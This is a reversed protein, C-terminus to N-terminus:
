AKVGLEKPTKFSKIEGNQLVLIKDCISAVSTRHTIIVTTIKKDKARKITNNLAVEGDTDLNSNPEDLVVFKAEDFYARVLAIRQRQGASLNGGEKEIITEYGNPLSLIIEHMDCFKASNIIKEDIEDKKM